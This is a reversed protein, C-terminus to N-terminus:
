CPSLLPINRPLLSLWTPLRKEQPPRKELAVIAPTSQSSQHPPSQSSQHSMGQFMNLLKHEAKQKGVLSGAAPLLFPNRTKEGNKRRKQSDKREGALLEM